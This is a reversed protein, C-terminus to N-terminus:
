SNGNEDDAELADVLERKNMSSYGEIGRAKAEDKLEPVTADDYSEVTRDEAPHTPGGHHQGEAGLEVMAGKVDEGYDDSIKGVGTLPHDKM